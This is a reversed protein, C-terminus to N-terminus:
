VFDHEKMLGHGRSVGQDLIYVISRSSGPCTCTNDIYGTVNEKVDQKLVWHGVSVQMCCGHPHSDIISLKGLDSHIKYKNKTKLKDGVDSDLTVCFMLWFDRQTISEDM